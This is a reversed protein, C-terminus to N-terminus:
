ACHQRSAARRSRLLGAGKQTPRAGAATSPRLTALRHHTPTCAHGSSNPVFDTTMTFSVGPIPGCDYASFNITGTAPAVTPAATAYGTNAEIAPHVQGGVGFSVANEGMGMQWNREFIVKGPKALRTATAPITAPEWENAGAPITDTIKYRSYQYFIQGEYGPGRKNSCTPVFARASATIYDLDIGYLNCYYSYFTFCRRGQSTERVWILTDDSSSSQRNNM